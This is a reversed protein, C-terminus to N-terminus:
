LLCGGGCVLVHELRKDDPTPAVTGLAEAEEGFREELEAPYHDLDIEDVDRGRASEIAPLRRRARDAAYTLFENNDLGFPQEDFQENVWTIM